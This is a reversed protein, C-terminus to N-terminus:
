KVDEQLTPDNGWRNWGMHMERAFLEVYPGAVLREIRRRVEAPKESHRGVPANIVERVDANLRRPSGKLGLLCLEAEKRTWYGMGMKPKVWVFATTRYEFGWAGMLSIADVLRNSVTWLFLACDRKALDGVPLTELEAQTMTPYHREASRDTGGTGYATFSWPPDALIAGHNGELEALPQPEVQAHEQAKRAIRIDGRKMDPHIFGSEVLGDFEEEPLDCLELLAAKDPPLVSDSETKTVYRVINPDRAIQMFQRGTRAGFPLCEDVWRTFRGHPMRMKAEELIRGCEFFHTVGRRFREGIAQAAVNDEDTWAAAEADHALAADVSAKTLALGQEHKKM